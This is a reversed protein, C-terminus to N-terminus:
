GATRRAYPVHLLEAAQRKAREGRQDYRATTLPSAHRRAAAGDRHRGADLLNSVYSRRREALEAQTLGRENRLRKLQRGIINPETV